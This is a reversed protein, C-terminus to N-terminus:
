NQHTGAQARVRMFAALEDTFGPLPKPNHAACWLACKFREAAALLDPPMTDRDRDLWACFDKHQKLYPNKAM